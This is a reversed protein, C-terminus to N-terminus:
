VRSAFAERLARIRHRSVKLVAGNSLTVTAPEDTRFATVAALNVVANRHIRLFADDPLHQELFSLSSDYAYSIHALHVSTSRGESSFYLVEDAGVVKYHSGVRIVFRRLFRRKAALHTELDALPPASPRRALARQLAELLRADSFPKLLYDCASVAFAELAFEDYATQFIVSFDRHEVNRLVDFGSLEPMEIDLFVLDPAFSLIAETALFGDAAERLEAEPVHQALTDRIRQRALREDDVILIKM